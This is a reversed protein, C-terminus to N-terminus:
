LTALFKMYYPLLFLDNSKELSPREELMNHNEIETIKGLLINPYLPSMKGDLRDRNFLPVPHTSLKGASKEM